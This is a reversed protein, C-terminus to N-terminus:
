FGVKRVEEWAVFAEDPEPELKLSLEVVEFGFHQPRSFNYPPRKDKFYIIYGDESSGLTDEELGKQISRGTHDNIVDLVNEWREWYNRGASDELNTHLVRIMFKM